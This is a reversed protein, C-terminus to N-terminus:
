FLIISNHLIAKLKCDIILRKRIVFCIFIPVIKQSRCLFIFITGTMILTDAGKRGKKKEAVSNKNKKM